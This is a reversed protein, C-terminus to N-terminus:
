SLLLNLLWIVWGVLGLVTLTCWFILIKKITDQKENMSILLDITKIAAYQQLQVDSINYPELKHYCRKQLESNYSSQILKKEVEPLKHFQENTMDPLETKVTFNKLLFSAKYDEFIKSM